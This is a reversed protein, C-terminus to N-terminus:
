HEALHTLSRLAPCASSQLQSSPNYSSSTKQVMAGRQVM